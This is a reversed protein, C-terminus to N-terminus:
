GHHDSHHNQDQNVTTRYQTYSHVLHDPLIASNKGSVQLQKLLNMKLLLVRKIEEDIKNMQVALTVVCSIYMYQYDYTQQKRCEACGGEGRGMGVGENLCM